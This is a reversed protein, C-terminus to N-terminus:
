ANEKPDDKAGGKLDFFPSDFFEEASISFIECLKELREPTALAGHREIWYVSQKTAGGLKEGLEALTMRNTLRLEKIRRGVAEEFTKPKERHLSELGANARKCRACGHGSLVEMPTVEWESGCDKCKFRMAKRNSEYVGLVEIEPAVMGVKEIFLAQRDASQAANSIEVEAMDSRMDKHPASVTFSYEKQADGLSSYVVETGDVIQYIKTRIGRKHLGQVFYGSYIGEELPKGSLEVIANGNKIFGRECRVNRWRKGNWSCLYFTYLRRSALWVELSIFFLLALLVFVTSDMVGGEGALLAFPTACVSALFAAIGMSGFMLVAENIKM